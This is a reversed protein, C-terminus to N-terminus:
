NKRRGQEKTGAAIEERLSMVGITPVDSNLYISMVTEVVPQIDRHIVKGARQLKEYPESDTTKTLRKRIARGIKVSAAGVGAGALCGPIGGAPLGLAGMAFGAAVLPKHKDFVEFAAEIMVYRRLNKIRSIEDNIRAVERAVEAFSNQTIEEGPIVKGMVRLIRPRYERVLEAYRKIPVDMPIQLGLGDAVQQRLASAIFPTDGTIKQLDRPLGAIASAGLPISANWVQALRLRRIFHAMGELQSLTERDISAVAEEVADLLTYDPHVYPVLLGFVNKINERVDTIGRVGKLHSLIQKKHKGVCHRCLGGDTLAPLMLNYWTNFEYLSVHAKKQVAEIVRTPYEDYARVLVPVFLDEDLLELYAEVEEETSFCDECTMLFVQPSFPLIALLYPLNLGSIIVKDTELADCVKESLFLNGPDFDPGGIGKVFSRVRDRHLRDLDHNSM